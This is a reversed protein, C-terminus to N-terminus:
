YCPYFYFRYCFSHFYNHNGQHFHLVTMFLTETYFILSTFIKVRALSSTEPRETIAWVKRRLEQCPGFFEVVKNEKELELFAVKEIHDDLEEKLQHFKFSCCQDFECHELGWFKLDRYFSVVCANVDLHMKSAYYYDLIMEFNRSSRDFYIEKKEINVEDCLKTLEGMNAAYRIKGLRSKPWKEITSWKILFNLGGINLTIEPSNNFLENIFHASKTMEYCPDEFSHQAAFHKVEKLFTQETKFRYNNHSGTAITNYM